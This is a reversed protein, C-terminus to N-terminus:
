QLVLGVEIDKECIALPGAFLMQVVVSIRIEKITNPTFGFDQEIGLWFSPTYVFFAKPILRDKLNREIFTKFSSNYM